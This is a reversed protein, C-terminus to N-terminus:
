KDGKLFAYYDEYTSIIPHDNENIFISKCYVNLEFNCEYVLYKIDDAINHQEEENESILAAIASVANNFFSHECMLEVLDGGIVDYIKNLVTDARDYAKKLDEMSKVFAQVKFLELDAKEEIYLFSSWSGFDITKVGNTEWIRWYPSKYEHDDLFKSAILNAENEQAARGIEMSDEYDAGFRVIFM